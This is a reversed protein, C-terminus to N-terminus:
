KEDEKQVLEDWIKLNPFRWYLIQLRSGKASLGRSRWKSVAPCSCNLYRALETDSMSESKLGAKIEALLANVLVPGISIFKRM